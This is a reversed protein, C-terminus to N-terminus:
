KALRTCRRWWIASFNPTPTPRRRRPAPSGTPLLRAADVSTNWGKSGVTILKEQKGENAEMSSVAEKSINVNYGGCLGRDGTIVIYATNKVERNEAFAVEAGSEIGARAGDILKKINEYMPRIDDLRAKAKQLKSAAVLDMAKLIKKTSTVSTIRKKIAKITAM